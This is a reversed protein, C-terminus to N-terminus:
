LNEKIIDILENESCNIYEIELEINFPSSYFDFNSKLSNIFECEFLKMVLSKYCYECCMDEVVYKLIKTKNIFGKDFELLTSYKNEQFLDIYKMIILPSFNNDYDINMETKFDEKDITVANIGKQSLLYEKIEDDLIDDLLLKLKDGVDM